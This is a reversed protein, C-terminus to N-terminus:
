EIDIEGAGTNDRDWVRYGSTWIKNGERGRERERRVRERIAVTNLPCSQRARATAAEQLM